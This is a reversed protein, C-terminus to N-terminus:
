DLLLYALAATPLTLFLGGVGGFLALLLAQERQVSGAPTRAMVRLSRGCLVGAAALLLHLLGLLGWQATYTSHDGLLGSDPLPIAAQGVVLYVGDDHEVARSSIVLCGVGIVVAIPASLFCLWALRSTM